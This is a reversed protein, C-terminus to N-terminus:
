NMQRVREALLDALRANGAANLHRSPTIYLTEFREPPVERAFAVAADLVHANQGLAEALTAHIWRRHRRFHQLDRRTPLLLVLPTQGRARCTREFERVIAVTLPV